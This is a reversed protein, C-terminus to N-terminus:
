NDRYYRSTITTQVTMESYSAERGIAEAMLNITVYAQEDVPERVYFRLSKINIKAPTLFGGIANGGSERVVKFRLIGNDEDLSYTVCEGHYNKLHLVDGYTNTSTAFRATNPISSCANSSRQAMRIEKSIVEYFYKVNEQVNQTAISQRQSDLIMKFIGTLALLIIVFLTTSILVEILSLGPQLPRIKM